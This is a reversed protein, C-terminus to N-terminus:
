IFIIKKIIIKQNSLATYIYKNNIFFLCFVALNGVFYYYYFASVVNLKVYLYYRNIIYYVVVFM